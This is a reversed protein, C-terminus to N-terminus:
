APRCVGWGGSWSDGPLIWRLGTTRDTGRYSGFLMIAAGENPQLAYLGCLLFLGVVALVIGGVVYIATEPGQAVIVPGLVILGMGVLLMLIGNATQAPREQSITRQDTM